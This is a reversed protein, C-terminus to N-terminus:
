GSTLGQKCEKADKLVQTLIQKANKCKKSDKVVIFFASYVAKIAALCWFKGRM